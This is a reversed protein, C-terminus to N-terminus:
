RLVHGLVLWYWNSTIHLESSQRTSSFDRSGITEDSGGCILFDAKECIPRKRWILFVNHRFTVVGVNASSVFHRWLGAWSKLGVQSSLVNLSNAGVASLTSVLHYSLREVDRFQLNRNYQDFRVLLRHNLPWFQDFASIKVLLGNITILWPLLVRILNADQLYRAKSHDIQIGEDPWNVPLSRTAHSLCCLRYEAAM